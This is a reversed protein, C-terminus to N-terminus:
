LGTDLKKSIKLCNLSSSASPQTSLSKKM